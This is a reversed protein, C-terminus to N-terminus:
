ATAETLAEAAYKAAGIAQARTPFQDGTTISGYADARRVTFVRTP